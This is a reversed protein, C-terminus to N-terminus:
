GGIWAMSQPLEPVKIRNSQPRAAVCGKSDLNIPSPESEDRGIRRTMSGKVCIPADISAFPAFPEAGSTIRPLRNCGIRYWSGTALAWTFLAIKNAASLADPLVVTM